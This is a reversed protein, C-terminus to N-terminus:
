VRGSGRADEGLGLVQGVLVQQQGLLLQQVAHAGRQAAARGLLHHDSADARARLVVQFLDCLHGVCLHTRARARTCRHTHCATPRRPTAYSAAAPMRRTSSCATAARRRALLYAHRDNSDNGVGQGAVLTSISPFPLLAHRQCPPPAQLRQSQMAQTRTTDSGRRGGPLMCPRQERQDLLNAVGRPTTHRSVQRRCCGHMSNPPLVATQVSVVCARAGACNHPQTSRLRSCAAAM